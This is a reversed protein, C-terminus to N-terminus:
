SELYFWDGSFLKFGILGTGKAYYIESFALDNGNPNGFAHLVDRYTHGNFLVEKLYVDRWPDSVYQESISNFQIQLNINAQNNQLVKVSVLAEHSLIIQVQLATHSQSQLITEQTEIHYAGCVKDTGQQHYQRSSAKFSIIQGAENRFWLVQQNTYSDWNKVLAVLKLDNNGCCNTFLFILFFILTYRTLM